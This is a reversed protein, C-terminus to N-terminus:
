EPGLYWMGHQKLREIKHSLNATWSMHVVYEPEALRVGEKIAKVVIHGNVFKNEALRLTRLGRERLANIVINVVVQNSQYYVMWDYSDFILQWAYRSFENNNIYAFGSNYYLPQYLPNIGDYMFLFDHGQEKAQARLYPLPDKFWVMDIDHLLVDHGLVLLDQIMATKIFMCKVFDADGFAKSPETPLEGYSTGDFYTAFGLDRAFRDADEDMPFLITAARCDIHHRDCSAAWNALMSTFGKNFTSAVFTDRDMRRCLERLVALREAKNRNYAQYYPRAISQSYQYSEASFPRLTDRFVVPGRKLDDLTRDNRPNPSTM